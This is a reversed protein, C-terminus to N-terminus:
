AMPLRCMRPAEPPTIAFHGCLAAVVSAMAPCAALIAATTQPSLLGARRWLGGRPTVHPFLFAAATPPSLIAVAYTMRNARTTTRTRDTRMAEWLDSRWQVNLWFDPCNGFVRALILATAATVNRRNKCLENVHKRQVGMAEALAGQTLGLPQMFEEILVEGVTVPKRKTTLMTRSVEGTATTTSISARQKAGAAARGPGWWDIPHTGHSSSQFRTGQHRVVRAKMVVRRADSRLRISAAARRGRGFRSRSRSQSSHFSKGIHGAKKAARMVEGVFTLPRKAGKNGHQIRGPRIRLDDDRTTM